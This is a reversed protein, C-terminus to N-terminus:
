VKFRGQRSHAPDEVAHAEYPAVCRLKGKYLDLQDAIACLGASTQRGTARAHSMPWLGITKMSVEIMMMGNDTDM